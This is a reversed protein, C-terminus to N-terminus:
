ACYAVIPRKEAKLRALHEGLEALPVSIAGPVHGQQYSGADRTDIVLVRNEALLEKFEAQSIRPVAALDDAQGGALGSARVVPSLPALCVGATLLLIAATRRM